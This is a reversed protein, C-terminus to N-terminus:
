VFATSRQNDNSSELIFSAKIVEMELENFDPVNKIREVAIPLHRIQPALMQFLGWVPTTIATAKKDLWHSETETPGSLHVQKVHSMPLHKLYTRPCFGHNVSNVFLASLDLILGCGTHRVLESIFEVEGLDSDAFNVYTAINELAIPHKLHNQVVDINDSIVKLTEENYPLPLLSHMNHTHSGSWGLHDSVLFPEVNEILNRVSHLYGLDPGEPNGINLHTGHLAVPYDRRLEKLVELAHGQSSLYEETTAELWAVDTHPQSQLYAFHSNHLSMGVKFNATSYKM